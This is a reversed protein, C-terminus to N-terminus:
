RPLEPDDADADRGANPAPGRMRIKEEDVIWLRGAVPEADLVPLLRRVLRLVHEVDAVAPRLVLIGTHTGPPYTRLDGFGKDLTLLVRQERQVVAFVTSDPVGALQEDHVSLVDHGAARRVPVADLPVNEDTKLRLPSVATV